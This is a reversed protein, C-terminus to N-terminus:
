IMAKEKKGEERMIRSDLVAMKKCPGMNTSFLTVHSAEKATLMLLEYVKVDM